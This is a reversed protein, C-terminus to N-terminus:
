RKRYHSARQADFIGPGVVVDHIPTQSVTVNEEVCLVTLPEQLEDAFGALKPLHLDIGVAKHVVVIVEQQLGRPGCQGTDHTMDISKISLPEISGVM